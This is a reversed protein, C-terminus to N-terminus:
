LDPASQKFSGQAYAFPALHFAHSVRSLLDLLRANEERMQAADARAAALAASSNGGQSLSHSPGPGQSGNGSTSARRLM